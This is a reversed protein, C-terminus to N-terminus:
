FTLYKIISKRIKEEKNNLGLVYALNVTIGDNSKNLYYHYSSFPWNKPSLNFHKFSNRSIYQLVRYFSKLGTIIKSKFRRFFVHGKRNLINNIKMAMVTGLWHMFRSMNSGQKPFFIELHFHNMMINFCVVKVKYKKTAKKLISRLLRIESRRLTIDSHFHNMIHYTAGPTFERLKRAM